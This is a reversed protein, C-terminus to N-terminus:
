SIQERKHADNTNKRMGEAVECRNRGLDKARYLAVDARRLLSEIDENQGLEAVGISVTVTIAPTDDSTETAVTEAAFAIRLREAAVRAQEAATSPLLAVFEEGGFRCFIDEGRLIHGAIAVFRCLLADGADHGLRDNVQKFNDLDMLLLSLSTTYRRSRALEKEAIISFARRNLAGTLPDRNAQSNLDAQLREATMLVMGLTVAITMCLWWLLMFAAVGGPNLPDVAQAGQHTAVARILFVAANIAYVLGTTRMAPPVPKPAALLERAILASMIAIVVANGLARLALSHQLQATAIWVLMSAALGALALPSLPPHGIFRRFGDWALILGALVALQALSLSPQWPVVGYSLILILAFVGFGGALAWRGLGPIAPHMRWLLLRAGACFANALAVAVLLTRIDFHINLM